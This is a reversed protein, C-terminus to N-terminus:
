AQREEGSLFDCAVFRMHWFCGFAHNRRELKPDPVLLSRNATYEVIKLLSVWTLVVFVKLWHLIPQSHQYVVTRFLMEFDSLDIGYRMKVKMKM